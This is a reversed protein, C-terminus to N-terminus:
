NFSARFQVPSQNTKSKFLKSFSQPHEFGLAYAIEGEKNYPAFLGTGANNILYDFRDTVFTKKLEPLLKNEFFPGYATLDAVNLQLAAARQGLAWHQGRPKSRKDTATARSSSM